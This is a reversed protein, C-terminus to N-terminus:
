YRRIRKKTEMGILIKDAERDAFLTVLLDINSKKYKGMLDDLEVLYVEKIIRIAREAISDFLGYEAYANDLPEILVKTM